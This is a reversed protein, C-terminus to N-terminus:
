HAALRELVYAAVDQLDEPKYARGLAPMQDRARQQDNHRDGRPEAEDDRATASQIKGDLSFLWLGDSRKSPALSTGGAYVVLYQKGNREFTSAPANVGGDTQSNGSRRAM